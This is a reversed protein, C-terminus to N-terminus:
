SLPPTAHQSAQYTAEGLNYENLNNNNPYTPPYNTPDTYMLSPVLDGWRDEMTYKYGRAKIAPLDDNYCPASYKKRDWTGKKKKYKMDRDLASMMLFKQSGKWLPETLDSQNIPEDPIYPQPGNRWHHPEQIDGDYFADELWGGSFQDDQHDIFDQILQSPSRPASTNQDRLPYPTILGSPGGLNEMTQSVNHKLKPNSKSAKKAPMDLEILLSARCVPCLPM